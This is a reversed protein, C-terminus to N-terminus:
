TLSRKCLHLLMFKSVLLDEKRQMATRESKLMPVAVRWTCLARKLLHKLYFGRVGTQLAHQEKVNFRFAILSHTLLTQHHQLKAVLMMKAEQRKAEARM